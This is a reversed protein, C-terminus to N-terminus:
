SRFCLIGKADLDKGMPKLSVFDPFVINRFVGLSRGWGTPVGKYLPSVRLYTNAWCDLSIAVLIFMKLFALEGGHASLM